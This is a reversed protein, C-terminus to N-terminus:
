RSAMCDQNSEQGNDEGKLRASVAMPVYPVVLPVLLEPNERALRELGGELLYKLMWPTAGEFFYGLLWNYSIGMENHAARVARQAKVVDLDGASGPEIREAGKRLIDTIAIDLYPEFIKAIDGTWGDIRLDTLYKQVMALKLNDKSENFLDDVVWGIVHERLEVPCVDRVMEAVADAIDEAEHWKRIEFVYKSM